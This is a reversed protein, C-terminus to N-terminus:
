SKLLKMRKILMGKMQNIRRVGPSLVMQILIVEAQEMAERQITIQVEMQTTAPRTKHKIMKVKLGSMIKHQNKDLLMM